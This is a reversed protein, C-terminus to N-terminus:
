GRGTYDPYIGLGPWGWANPPVYFEEKNPNEDCYPEYKYYACDFWHYGGGGNTDKCDLLTAKVLEECNHTTTDHQVIDLDCRKDWVISINYGVNVFRGQEYERITLFNNHNPDLIPNGMHCIKKAMNSVIDPNPQAYQHDLGTCKFAPNCVLNSEKNQFIQNREPATNCSPSFDYTVCGYTVNGGWGGNSPCRNYGQSLRDTCGILDVYHEKEVTCNPIWELTYTYDVHGLSETHILLTRNGKHDDDKMIFDDETLTRHTLNFM